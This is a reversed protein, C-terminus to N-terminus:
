RAPGARYADSSAFIGLSGLYYRNRCYFTTNVSGDEFERGTYEYPNTVNVTPTGLTNGFAYYDYTNQLTENASVVNRISGLNVRRPPGDAMYYYTSGGTTM